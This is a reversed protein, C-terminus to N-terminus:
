EGLTCSLTCPAPVQLASPGILHAGLPPGGHQVAMGGVMGAVGTVGAMGPVGTLQQGVSMGGVGSAGPAAAGAGATQNAGLVAGGKGPALAVVGAMQGHAMQSAPSLAGTHLMTAGGTGVIGQVPHAPVPTSRSVKCVRCAKFARSGPTGHLLGAGSAAALTGSNSRAIHGVVGGQTPDVSTYVNSVAHVQRQTQLTSAHSGMITTMSNVGSVGVMGLISPVSGVTFGAPGVNSLASGAAAGSQGQVMGQVGQLNHSGPFNPPIGGGANMCSVDAYIGVGQVGQM